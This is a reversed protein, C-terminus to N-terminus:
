KQEILQALQISYTSAILLLGFVVDPIFPVDSTKMEGIDIALNINEFNKGILQFFCENGLSEAAKGISRSGAFLELLKIM